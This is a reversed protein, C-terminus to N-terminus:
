TEDDKRPERHLLFGLEGQVARAAKAENPVTITMKGIVLEKRRPWRVRGGWKYRWVSM